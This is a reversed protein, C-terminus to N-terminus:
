PSRVPHLRRTRQARHIRHGDIRVVIDPSNSRQPASPQESEFLTASKRVTPGVALRHLIEAGTFEGARMSDGHVLVSVDPGGIELGLIAFALLDDFERGVALNQEFEAGGSFLARSRAFEILRRADGHQGIAIDDHDFAM